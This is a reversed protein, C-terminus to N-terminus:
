LGSWPPDCRHNPSSRNGRCEVRGHRASMAHSYDPGVRIQLTLMHGQHHHLPLPADYQFDAQTSRLTCDGAGSGVRYVSSVGGTQNKADTDPNYATAQFTESRNWYFRGDDHGVRYRGPRYRNTTGRCPLTIAYLFPCVILKGLTRDKDTVTHTTPYRSTPPIIM